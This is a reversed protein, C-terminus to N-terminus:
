RTGTAAGPIGAGAGLLLALRPRTPRDAPHPAGNRRHRDVGASYGPRGTREGRRGVSTATM